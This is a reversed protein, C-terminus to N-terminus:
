DCGNEKGLSEEMITMNWAYETGRKGDWEIALKKWRLGDDASRYIEGEGSLYFVGPEVVSAAIVPIRLGKGKPLGDQVQRWPQDGSRLYISSSAINRFHAAYASTAASLLLSSSDFNSIAVSWCYQHKLGNVTRRWSNDDDVSEFFGDGAASYLHAPHSPHVALSHTDMPSGPIRDRWTEGADDSRLLAGAEIAVHLRDPGALSPLMSQVHHTNPRPPFSWTKASPLTLLSHLERWTAGADNSRYVASLETGAYVTSDHSVALATVKSQTFCPSPQWTTGRDDSRFLGDGLTGCYVIHTRNPDAAVCQVQKDDLCVKGRWNEAAGTIVTLGRATALYIMTRM